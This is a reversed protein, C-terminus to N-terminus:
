YNSKNINEFWGNKLLKFNKNKLYLNTLSDNFTKVFEESLGDRSSFYSKNITDIRIHGFKYKRSLEIFKQMNKKELITDIQYLDLVNLTDKLNKFNDIRFINMVNGNEDLHFWLRFKELNIDELYVSGRRYGYFNEHLSKLEELNLFNKESRNRNNCSLFIFCTIVLYFFKM